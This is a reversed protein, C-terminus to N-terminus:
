DGPMEVPVGDDVTTLRQLIFGPTTTPFSRVSADGILMNCVGPHWSGLGRAGWVDNTETPRSIGYPSNWTVLRAVGWDQGAGGQIQLYSLDYRWAAELSALPSVTPIHKESLLLQNSTGDQWYAMSDHPKWSRCQTVGPNGMPSPPNQLIAYRFPGRIVSNFNFSVGSSINYMGRYHNQWGSLNTANIGSDTSEQATIDDRFTILPSYDSVPGNSVINGNGTAPDQIANQPVANEVYQAGARRTPCIMTKVSGFARKQEDSVVAPNLWFGGTGTATASTLDRGFGEGGVTDLFDYLAAQEIFAYLLPFMAARNIGIGLPPLGHHTDHFNHIATGLQKMNNVCQSRRAAERAAQIAPLLLAILVGIIAIVVLLEVLTFASNAGREQKSLHNKM